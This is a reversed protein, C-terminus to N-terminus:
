LEEVLHEEIRVWSKVFLKELDLIFDLLFYLKNVFQRLIQALWIQDVILHHHASLVMGDSLALFCSRPEYVKFCFFISDIKVHIFGKVLQGLIVIDMGYLAGHEWDLHEELEVHLEHLILMSAHQCAFFYVFKYALDLGQIISLFHWPCDKDFQRRRGDGLMASPFPESLGEDICKDHM